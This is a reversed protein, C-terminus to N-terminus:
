LLGGILFPLISIILTIFNHIFHMSMSVFISDTKSYIYAFSCGMIGYPIIYLLEMTNSIGAIVHCFGFILGSLLIYVIKNDTVNRLSKRFVIEETFPAYILTSITTYIPFKILYSQVIEENASNSNYVFSIFINSLIMLTLSIFWVKLGFIFFKKFNNKYLKFEDILSKRYIIFLICMFVIWSIIIIILRLYISNLNIGIRELVYFIISSWFTELFFLVIFVLINIQKKM